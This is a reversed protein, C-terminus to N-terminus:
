KRAKLVGGFVLQARQLLVVLHRRLKTEEPKGPLEAVVSRRITCPLAELLSRGQMATLVHM